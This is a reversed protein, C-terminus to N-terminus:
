LVSFDVLIGFLYILAQTVIIAKKLYSKKVCMYLLAVSTIVNIASYLSNERKHGADICIWQLFLSNLECLIPKSCWCRRRKMTKSRWYPWTVITGHRWTFRKIIVLTLFLKGLGSGSSSINQFGASSPSPGSTVNRRIVTSVLMQQDRLLGNCLTTLNAVEQHLRECHQEWVQREMNFQEQERDKILQEAPTFNKFCFFARWNSLFVRSM